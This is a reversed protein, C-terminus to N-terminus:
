TKSDEKKKEDEEARIEVEADIKPAEDESSSPHEEKASEDKVKAPAPPENVALVSLHDDSWKFQGEDLGTWEKRMESLFDSEDQSAKRRLVPSRAGTSKTFLAKQTSNKNKAM